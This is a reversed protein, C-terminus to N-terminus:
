RHPTQTSSPRTMSVTIRRVFSCNENCRKVFSHSTAAPLISRKMIFLIQIITFFRSVKFIKLISLFKIEHLSMICHFNGSSYVYPEHAKLSLAFLEYIGSKKQTKTKETKKEEKFTFFLSRYPKIHPIHQNCCLVFINANDVALNTYIFLVLHM